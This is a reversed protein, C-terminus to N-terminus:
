PNWGGSKAPLKFLHSTIALELRVTAAAVKKLREDWYLAIDSGRIQAIFRKGLPHTKLNEIRRLEQSSGKKHPSIERAYRNLTDSLTSNATESRDVFSGRDMETEILSAWAEAEAKTNFTGTQLPFDRRRIKVRWQLDGRKEFTAM